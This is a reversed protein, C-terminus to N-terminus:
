RDPTASAGCPADPRMYSCAGDGAPIYSVRTLPEGVLEQVFGVEARCPIKSVEVLEKLPCHCLRLRAGDRHEEVTAMFGQESLITAAEELRERGELGEVRPLAEARRAEIFRDFFAELVDAAGREELYTALEKLMQPERRPFLAEAQKTLVYVIEPRGPGSGRSGARAVLGQARLTKLHARVTEINLGM